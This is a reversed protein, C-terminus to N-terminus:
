SEHESFTSLVYFVLKISPCEKPKRLSRMCPYVLVRLRDTSPLLSASLTGDSLFGLFHGLILCTKIYIPGLTMPRSITFVLLKYGSRPVWM